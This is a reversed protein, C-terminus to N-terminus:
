TAGLEKLLLAVLFGALTAMAAGYNPQSGARPDVAAGLPRGSEIETKAMQAWRIVHEMPKDHFTRLLRLMERSLMAKEIRPRLVPTEGLLEPLDRRLLVWYRTETATNAGTLCLM